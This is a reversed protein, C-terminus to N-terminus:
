RFSSSVAALQMQEAVLKVADVDKLYLLERYDNLKSLHRFPLVRM